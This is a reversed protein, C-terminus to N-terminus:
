LAELKNRLEIRLKENEIMLQENLAVENEFLVYENALESYVNQLTSVSAKDLLHANANIVEALRNLPESDLKM